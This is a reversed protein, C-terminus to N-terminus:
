CERVLIFQEEERLDVWDSLDFLKNIKEKEEAEKEEDLWNGRYLPQPVGPGLEITFVSFKIQRKYLKM